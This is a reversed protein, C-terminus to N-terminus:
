KIKKSLVMVISQNKAKSGLVGYGFPFPLPENNLIRSMEKMEDQSEPEVAGSLNWSKEYRGYLTRSWEGEPFFRLPFGSDDQVVQNTNTLLLTRFASRREGHFLYEASKTFVAKTGLSSFYEYLGDGPQGESGKLFIKFYTLTQNQKSTPDYLDLSFGMYIETKGQITELRSDVIIKGLRRLFSVFVPYAGSLAPKKTEEKMKRYTFYNRGALHASLSSIGHLIVKKDNASKQEWEFPFGPDELGFLVYRKSRPFFTFLNLVDIGSFPYVVTESASSYSKVKLFQDMESKRDLMVQWSIDMEAKHKTDIEIPTIGAWNDFIKNADLAKASPIRASASCQFFILICFFNIPIQIKKTM